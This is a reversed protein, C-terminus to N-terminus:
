TVMPPTMNPRTTLLKHHRLTTVMDHWPGDPTHTSYMVTGQPWEDENLIPHARVAYFTNVVAPKRIQVNTTIATPKAPAHSTCIATTVNAANGGTAM